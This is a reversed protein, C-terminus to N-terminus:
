INTLMEGTQTHMQSEEDMKGDKRFTHTYRLVTRGQRDDYIQRQTGRTLLSSTTWFARGTDVSTPLLLGFKESRMSSNIWSLSLALPVATLVVCM